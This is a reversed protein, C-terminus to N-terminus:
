KHQCNKMCREYETQCTKASYGSACARRQDNCQKCGNAQEAQAVHSPSWGILIVIMLSTFIRMDNLEENEHQV